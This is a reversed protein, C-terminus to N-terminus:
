FVVSNSSSNNSGNSTAEASGAHMNESNVERADTSLISLMAREDRGAICRPTIKESPQMLTGGTIASPSLTPCFPGSASPSVNSCVSVHIRYIWICASQPGSCGVPHLLRSPNPLSILSASLSKCHRWFPLPRFPPPFILPLDGYTVVRGALICEPM